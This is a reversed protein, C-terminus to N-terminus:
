PKERQFENIWSIINEGWSVAAKLEARYGSKEQSGGSCGTGRWGLCCQLVEDMYEINKRNM